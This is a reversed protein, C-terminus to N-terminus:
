LLADPIKDFVSTPCVVTVTTKVPSVYKFEFTVEKDDYHVLSYSDCQKLHKEVARLDSLYQKM